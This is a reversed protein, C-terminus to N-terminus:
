GNKGTILEARDDYGTGQSFYYTFYENYHNYFDPFNRSVISQIRKSIGNTGLIIEHKYEFNIDLDLISEGHQFAGKVGGDLLLGLKSGNLISFVKGAFLQFIQNGLGGKIIISIM